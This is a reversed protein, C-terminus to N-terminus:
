KTLTYSLDILSYVQEKPFDGKLLISLWHRKNMHYAPLIGPENRLSDILLPDCKVNLVDVIRNGNGGLKNESVDLIAGFWKRNHTHRLIACNPADMWPYDPEVDYKDKVYALVQKRTIM